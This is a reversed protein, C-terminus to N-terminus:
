HSVPKAVEMRLDFPVSQFRRYFGSPGDILDMAGRSILFWLTGYLLWGAENETLHAMASIQEVVKEQRFSPSLVEEV